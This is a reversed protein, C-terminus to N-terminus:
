EEAVWFWCPWDLVFAKYYQTQSTHCWFAKLVCGLVRWPDTLHIIQIFSPTEWNCGQLPCVLSLLDFCLGEARRNPSVEWRSRPFFFSSNHKPICQFQEWFWTELYDVFTHRHVVWTFRDKGRHEQLIQLIQMLSAQAYLRANLVYKSICQLNIKFRKWGQMAQQWCHFM